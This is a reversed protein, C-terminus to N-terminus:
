LTENEFMAKKERLHNNEVELILIKKIAWELRDQLSNLHTNTARAIREMSSTRDKFQNMMTIHLGIYILLNFLNLSPTILEM